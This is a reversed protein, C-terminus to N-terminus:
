QLLNCDARCVRSKSLSAESTKYKTRTNSQVETEGEQEDELATGSGQHQTIAQSVDMPYVPLNTCQFEGDERTTGKGTSSHARATLKHHRVSM